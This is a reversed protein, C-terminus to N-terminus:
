SSESMLSGLASNIQSGIIGMLEENAAAFSIEAAVSKLESRLESVGGTSSQSGGSESISQKFRAVVSNIKALETQLEASLDEKRAELVEKSQSSALAGFLGMLENIRRRLNAAMAIAEANQLANNQDGDADQNDVGTNSDSTVTTGSQIEYVKTWFEASAKLFDRYAIAVKLEAEISTLNNPDVNSVSTNSTTGTNYAELLKELDSIRIDTMQQMTTIDELRAQADSSDSTGDNTVAELLSDRQVQLEATVAEFNTNDVGTVRYGLYQNLTLSGFLAEIAMLKHELIDTQSNVDVMVTNSDYSLFTPIISFIFM